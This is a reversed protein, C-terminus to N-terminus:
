DGTTPPYHSFNASVKWLHGPNQATSLFVEYYRYREVPGLMPSMIIDPKNDNDLDGIWLIADDATAWIPDSTNGEVVPLKWWEGEGFRVSWQISGIGECTTNCQPNASAKMSFSGIGQIPFSKSFQKKQLPYSCEPFPKKHSWRENIYLTKVPGTKLEPIGRMYM